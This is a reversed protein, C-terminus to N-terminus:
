NQDSNNDQSATSHGNAGPGSGSQTTANSATQTNNGKVDDVKTSGSNQAHASFGFALAVAAAILSKKM